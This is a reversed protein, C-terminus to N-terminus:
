GSGIPHKFDPLLLEGPDVGGCGNERLNKVYDRKTWCAGQIERGRDPRVQGKAYYSKERM